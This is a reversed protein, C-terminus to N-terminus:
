TKVMPGVHGEFIITLGLTEAAADPQQLWRSTMPHDQLPPILYVALAPVMIAAPSSSSTKPHEDPAGVAVTVGSIVGSGAVCAGAGVGVATGVGKDVAVGTGGGEAM